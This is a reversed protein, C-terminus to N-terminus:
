IVSNYTISELLLKEYRPFYKGDPRYRVDQALSDKTEFANVMVFDQSLKKVNVSKVLKAILRDCAGCGSMHAFLLVPKSEM